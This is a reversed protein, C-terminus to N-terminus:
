KPGQGPGMQAWENPGPGMPGMIAWKSKDDCCWLVVLYGSEKTRVYFGAFCFHGPWLSVPGLSNLRLRVKRNYCMIKLLWIHIKMDPRRKGLDTKLCTSTKHNTRTTKSLNSKPRSYGLLTKLADPVIGSWNQAMKSRNQVM